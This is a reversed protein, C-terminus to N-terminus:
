RWMGGIRGGALKGRAAGVGGLLKVLEAELETDLKVFIYTDGDVQLRRASVNKKKKLSRGGIELGTLAGLELDLNGGVSVVHEAKLTDRAGEVDEKAAFLEGLVLEGLRLLEDGDGHLGLGRLHTLVNGTGNQAADLKILTAVIGENRELILQVCVNASVARKDSNAGVIELIDLEGDGVLRPFGLVNLKHGQVLGLFHGTGLEHLKVVLVFGEM